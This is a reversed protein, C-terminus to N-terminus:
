ERLHCYFVLGEHVTLRVEYEMVVNSVGHTGVAVPEEFLEWAVGQISVLNRPDFTILSITDGPETQFVLETPKDTNGSAIRTVGYDDVISLGVLTHYKLMLALNALTHDLRGGTAGALTIVRAGKDLAFLIAKETDALDQDILPVIEAKPFREHVLDPHVSDFDGCVIDPVIGLEFATEAAGDTAIVMHHQEALGQAIASSPPDGNSLIFVYM